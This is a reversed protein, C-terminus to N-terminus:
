KQADMRRITAKAITHAVPYADAAFEEWPIVGAQIWTEWQASPITRVDAPTRFRQGTRDM